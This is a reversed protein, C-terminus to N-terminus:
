RPLPLGVVHVANHDHNSILLFDDTAAASASGPPPGIVHTARRTRPDIRVVVSDTRLWVAGGGVTLDGGGIALGTMALQEAEGSRPDIHSVSGDGQNMVWVAGFGVDLFRPRPGVPVSTWSGRRLDYREVTGEHTPVWLSGFGARVAVAGEPAEIEEVVADGEVVVIRPESPEVLVYARGGAAGVVAEAVPSAPLRVRDLVAGTTADLRFLASPNLSPVWVSEPTAALAQVVEGPIRARATIAGSADYRVAGPAVGSLWVGDGATVAFDAFPRAPLTRAEVEKLSLTAPLDGAELYTPSPSDDPSPTESPSEGPIESTAEGSSTPEEPREDEACGLLAGALLLFTAVPPGLRM